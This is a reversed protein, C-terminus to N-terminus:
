FLDELISPKEQAANFATELVFIVERVRQYHLFREVTSKTWTAAGGQSRGASECLWENWGKVFNEYFKM